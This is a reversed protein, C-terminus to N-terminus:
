ESNNKKQHVRALIMNLSGTKTVEKYNKQPSINLM